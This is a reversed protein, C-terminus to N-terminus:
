RWPATRGRVSNYISKFLWFPTIFSYLFMFYFMEPSLKWRGYVTKYGYMILCIIFITLTLTLISLVSTDVFFWDFNFSPSTLGLTITKYIFDIFKSGFQYITILVLSFSMVIAFLAFPLVLLGLDGHKKNLLMYRYDILNGLFGSIWRVRQKYLKKITDPGVTYVIAEPENVIKMHHTQMRMAMEMDETNHAHRYLGVKDFVEKRFFSFPGPTIHIAGISGYAKRIFNGYGYEARQMKRLINSPKDIIMSPTVAMVTPDQFRRMIRKLAHTDVFSDADLCGVFETKMHTIGFNLATYKGGNEKTVVEIVPNSEYHKLVERTGDTSGDDVVMIHLKDKPYDLMLLSELTGVVTKEENWVPVIITVPPFFYELEKLTVRDKKSEFLSILLFVEFYLAVFIVSSGLISVVLDM